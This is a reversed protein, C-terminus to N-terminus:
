QGDELEVEDFWRAQVNGKQDVYQVLYKFGGNIKDYEIDVVPGEIVPQILRVPDGIKKSM